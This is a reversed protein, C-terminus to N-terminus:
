FNRRREREVMMPGIPLLRVRQHQDIGFQRQFPFRVDELELAAQRQRPQPAPDRAMGAQGVACEITLTGLDRPPRSSKERPNQLVLDVM